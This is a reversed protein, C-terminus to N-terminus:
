ARGKVAFPLGAKGVGLDEMAQTMDKNDAEVEAAAEKAPAGGGLGTVKGTTGETVDTIISKIWEPDIAGEKTLLPSACLRRILKGNVEFGGEKLVTEVTAVALTVNQGETLKAVQAELVANRDKLDKMDKIEEPTMNDKEKENQSRRDSEQVPVIPAGKAGARTVFDVSTFPTKIFKEAIRGHRGEVEGERSKIYSNISVGIHAGKELVQNSFDSFVKAKAYLGPGKVGNDNWAANETIVAALDNISGEPRDTEESATQHNWYMHTGKTFVETGSEKIMEKSYYAMSGWGPGIIKIPITTPKGTTAAEKAGAVLMDVCEQAEMCFETSETVLLDDDGHTILVSKGGMSEQTKSDVYAVHVKKPDGLTVTPDTGAAGQDLKYSRKYSQGKHQYVVHTPFVDHIYPGDMWSGTTGHATDLAKRIHGRLADHSQNMPLAAEVLKSSKYLSGGMLVDFDM